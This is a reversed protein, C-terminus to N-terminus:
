SWNLSLHAILLLLLKMFTQTAARTFNVAHGLATVGESDGQPRGATVFGALLRMIFQEM